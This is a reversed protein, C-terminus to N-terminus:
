ATEGGTCLCAAHARRFVPPLCVRERMRKENDYAEELQEIRTTLQRCNAHLRQCQSDAEDIRTHMGNM